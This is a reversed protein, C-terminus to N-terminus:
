KSAPRQRRAPPPAKGNPRSRGFLQLSPASVVVLDPGLSGYAVLRRDRQHIGTACGALWGSEPLFVGTEPM